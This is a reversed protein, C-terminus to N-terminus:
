HEKSKDDTVANKLTITYFHLILKEVNLHSGSFLFTEQIRKATICIFESNGNLDKWLPFIYFDLNFPYFILSLTVLHLRIEIWM